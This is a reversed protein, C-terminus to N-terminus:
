RPQLMAQELQRIQQDTAAIQRDLVQQDRRLRDLQQELERREADKRTAESKLQVRRAELQTISARIESPTPVAPSRRPTLALPSSSLVALFLLAIPYCVRMLESRRITM